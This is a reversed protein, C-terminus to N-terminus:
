FSVFFEYQSSSMSSNLSSNLPHYGLRSTPQFQGYSLSDDSGLSEDDLDFSEDELRFTEDEPDFSQDEPDSSQDEQDLSHVAETSLEQDTAEDISDVRSSDSQTSDDQISNSRSFHSQLDSQDALANETISSSQELYDVLMQFEPDETPHSRDAPHNAPRSLIASLNLDAPRDLNPSDSHETSHSVNPSSHFRSMLRDIRGSDMSWDMQGDDGSSGAQAESFSSLACDSPAHNVM